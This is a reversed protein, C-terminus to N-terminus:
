IETVYVRAYGHLLSFYSIDHYGEGHAPYPGSSGTEFLEFEILLDPSCSACLPLLLQSQM